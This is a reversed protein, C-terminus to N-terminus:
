VASALLTGDRNFALSFVESDSVTARFRPTFHSFQLTKPKAQVFPKTLLEAARVNEPM